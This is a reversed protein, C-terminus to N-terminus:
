SVKRRLSGFAGLFSIGCLIMLSVSPEPVSTRTISTIELLSYAAEYNSNSDDFYSFEDCYLPTKNSWNDLNVASYLVAYHSRSGCILYPITYSKGEWVTSYEYGFFSQDSTKYHDPLTFDGLFDAYFYSYDSGPNENLTYTTGNYTYYGDKETDFQFTYKVNKEPFSSTLDDESNHIESVTGCATVTILDAKAYLSLLLVVSTISFIKKM